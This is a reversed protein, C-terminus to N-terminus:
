AMVGCGKQPTYNNIRRFLNEIITNKAKSTTANTETLKM